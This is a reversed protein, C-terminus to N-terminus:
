PFSPCGTRREKSCAAVFGLNLLLVAVESAHRGFVAMTRAWGNSWLQVYGLCAVGGALVGLGHLGANTDVEGNLLLWLAWGDILALLVTALLGSSLFLRGLRGPEVDQSCLAGMAMSFLPSFCLVFAWRQGLWPTLADCLILPGGCFALLITIVVIM